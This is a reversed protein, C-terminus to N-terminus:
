LSSLAVKDARLPALQITSLLVGRCGFMALRKTTNAHQKQPSPALGRCTEASHRVMDVHPIGAELFEESVMSFGLREYFATAQGPRQADAAKARAKRSRRHGSADACRRSEPRALGQTGVGPWHATPCCAPPVSRFTAKSHWSICPPRTTPMGNLSLHFSQEAIFVTERIRRIEANDKQWDAVRVHIKNM